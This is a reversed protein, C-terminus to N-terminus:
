MQMYDQEHEWCQAQQQLCALDSHILNNSNNITSVTGRQGRKGAHKSMLNVCKLQQQKECM